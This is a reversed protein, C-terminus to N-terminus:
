RPLFTRWWLALVLVAYLSFGADVDGAKHERARREVAAIDLPGDDVFPKSRITDMLVDHLPGKLAAGVPVNFGRKKRRATEKSVREEVHRRLIRKKEGDHALLLRSPLSLALEVFNPDLFPVRVELGHRMSARDVKVLMDNPLYHTFDAILMRKLLTGSPSMADAYREIAKGDPLARKLLDRKDDEDLYIRWSAFDKGGGREAGRLFRLAFDRVNYRETSPPIREFGLRALSRLPSPLTRWIRAFYTAAYTSYGALIEDAGDGSLAVTVHKRTAACLRDVALISSDALLDDNTRAVDLVANTLDLDVVDTQHQSGLIKASHAAADREDFSAETFGVSFTRVPPANRQKVVRMMEAVVSASDLGGSLFAGLPVDSVMQMEVSKHLQERFEHLAHRMDLRREHPVPRWYTTTTPTGGLECSWTTAPALQTVGAFPSLPQPVYAHTLFADIAEWNPARKVAPDALIAKMESGFRLVGGHDVHIFLPKIGVHDRALFVRHPKSREDVIAFAFIGNLKPVMSPGWERWAAVLVETDGDSTFTHGRKELQARLDRFNYIEGNFVIAIGNKVMPQSAATTPDLIALRRHGLSANESRWVGRGDPGRHALADTMRDVVDPSPLRRDGRLDVVGTIGCM